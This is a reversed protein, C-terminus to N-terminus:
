QQGPPLLGPDIPRGDRRLELYLEPLSEGREQSMAGLTRGCSIREGLSVVIRRRGAIMM